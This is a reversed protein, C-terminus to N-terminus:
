SAGWRIIVERFLSISVVCLIIGVVTQLVRPSTRGTLLAGLYSGLVAAVGMFVLLPYDVEGKLSHGLFGFTGMIAGIIINTGVARHPSLGVVQLLTPLRLVGLILGVAGGLLGTGLGLAAGWSLRSPPVDSDLFSRETQSSPSAEKKARTHWEQRLSSIGLYVVILAIVLLLINEPVSSGLFGGLFGGIFSPVGVVLVVRLDVRGSRLHRYSGGMSGLAGVALNTGAAVPVPFGLLLFFPLRLSGLALGVFGGIIGVAFSVTTLLAVEWLQTGPTFAWSESLLPLM